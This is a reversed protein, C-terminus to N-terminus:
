PRSARRRRSWRILWVAGILAILLLLLHMPTLLESVLEGNRAAILLLVIAVVWILGLAIRLVYGLSRGFHYAFSQRQFLRPAPAPTIVVRDPPKPPPSARRRVEALLRAVEAVDRPRREREKALMRMVLDDLGKWETLEPRLSSPARPAANKHQTAWGEYSEADFVTQGTLMEFLVGGLAYLDTRGDLEAAKMGAWQEPAAYAMTLLSGCTKTYATSSEKTAVIGFDAIKPVWAEGQRAMLINEPKIDRHVMGKAHAAGLGEAIGRTISLALEVPLAGLPLRLGKSEAASWEPHCDHLFDRLDPGGVFEMPFFLSGDEAQEPDGCDVVNECRVQHLTRVERLFRGTFAPDGALEPSLFKLARPEGILTHQALYVSGMGGQGLKRVIRYSNRIVMGPKLDRIENLTVGHTPCTTHSEPYGTNCQPCVKM